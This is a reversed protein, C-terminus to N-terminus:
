NTTDITGNIERCGTLKLLGSSFLLESSLLFNHNHTNLPFQAIMCLCLLLCFYPFPFKVPLFYSSSLILFHLALKWCPLFHLLLIDCYIQQYWLQYIYKNTTQLLPQFLLTVFITSSMSNMSNNLNTLFCSSHTFCKLLIEDQLNNIEWLLLIHQQFLLNDPVTIYRILPMSLYRYM